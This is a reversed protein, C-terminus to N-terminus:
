AREEVGVTIHSQRKIIPHARGRDKPQFRKIRPADGVRSETVVLATVDAQNQEADAIAANLAKKINVAARKPTFTLQNLADDVRRGRILDVLLGAKRPSGRHYLVESVFRAIDKPQCKVAAALRTIDASKCRPHDRGSLWNRVASLAADGNLGTREVAEALAELTVGERAALQKLKDGRLRV